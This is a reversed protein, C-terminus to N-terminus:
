ETAPGQARYYALLKEVTGYRPNRTTEARLKRLTGYPIGAGTAVDRLRRPPEAKLQDIVVHLESMDVTPGFESRLAVGRLVTEPSLGVFPRAREVTASPSCSGARRLIGNTPEHGNEPKLTNVHQGSAPM